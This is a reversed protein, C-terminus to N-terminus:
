KKWGGKPMKCYETSAPFPSPEEVEHQNSIKIGRKELGKRTDYFFVFTSEPKDPKNFTTNEVKSEVQEGHGVGLKEDPTADIRRASRLVGGFDNSDIVAGKYTNLTLSGGATTLTRGVSINGTDGFAGSYGGCIPQNNMWQPTSHPNPDVLFTKDNWGSLLKSLSDDRFIMVGISGEHGDQDIAAAYSNERKNFVFESVKSDDIRWGTIDTHGGARIVYGPSNESAKESNIVSLGDVSVVALIPDLRNNNTIRITFSSNKRGEIFNNGSHFYETVPNGNVLIEVEVSKKFM